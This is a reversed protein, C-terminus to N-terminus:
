VNWSLRVYNTLDRYHWMGGETYLQEKLYERLIELDDERIQYRAQMDRVADEFNCYERNFSTESLMTIDSFIGMDYLLKYVFDIKRHVNVDLEKHMRMALIRQDREWSTEGAFWYIEVRKVAHRIIKKVAEQIDEMMLSYSMIVLDYRNLLEEPTDEWTYPLIRINSIRETDMNKKLLNRMSESPEVATVECGRRALPISLIGPGSGIDLVRMGAKLKMQTVRYEGDEWIRESRNYAEAKKQNDYQNEM